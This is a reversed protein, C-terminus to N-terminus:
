AGIRIPVRDDTQYVLKVSYVYYAYDRLPLFSAAQRGSLIIFCFGFTFMIAQLLVILLIGATFTAWGPIALDTMARVGGVCGLGTLTLSILLATAMLLRVGITDGYVSIASLGHIVLNVFNMKSKGQLRKARATPIMEVPQRSKFVAAAYHNWMESVVVLSGLKAAPIVSFNGVCVSRSTLLYHLLKYLIYFVKFTPSESRKSRKAFVIKQGAEEHYKKILRPVDGPDDEGDGDMVIVAQCTVKEEVYALGIAIARQHGLNRRLRLIEVKRLAEFGREPFALDAYSTSGDDIILVNVTLGHEILVADLNLLLKSFCAWDDFVPILVVLAKNEITQEVKDKPSCTSMEGSFERLGSWM